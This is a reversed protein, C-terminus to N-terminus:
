LSQQLLKCIEDHGRAAAIMYPSTGSYDAISTDIGETALLQRVLGVHGAGAAYSLATRGELSIENVSFTERSFLLRAIGFSQWSIALAFMELGSGDYCAEPVHSLLTLANTLREPPDMTWAFPGWGNLDKAGACLPNKKLLRELIRVDSQQAAWSIANRGERDQWSLDCGGIHILYDVVDLHQSMAAYILPTRGHADVQNTQGRQTRVLLRVIDKFGYECAWSLATRQTSDLCDSRTRSDRLLQRVIPLSGVSVAWTLPTAGLRDPLNVDVQSHSLIEIVTELHGGGAAVSLPTRGNLDLENVSFSEGSLIEVVCTTNGRAAAIVLPSRGRINSWSRQSPRASLLVRTCSVYGNSAAWYLAPSCADDGCGSLLVTAMADHGYFCALTLADPEVPYGGREHDLISVYRFWNRQSKTEYLLLALGQLEATLEHQIVFFHYTWFRAAYDFLRYRIGMSAAADETVEESERFLMSLSHDSTPSDDCKGTFSRTGSRIPSSPTPPRSNSLLDYEFDELLLYRMCSELVTSHPTIVDSFLCHFEAARVDAQCGVLYEKLTHHILAVRDDSTRVLGSLLGELQRTDSFVASADVEAVSLHMEDIALLANMEHVTLNRQCTGILCISKGALSRDDEPISEMLSSYMRMLTGPMNQAVTLLDSKELFRRRHLLSLALSVWLFSGEAKKQLVNELLIGTQETCRGNRVLRETNEQIFFYVDQELSSQRMELELHSTFDNYDKLASAAPCNPRSTVFARIPTLNLRAMEYLNQVFWEQGDQPCEDIADIILVLSQVRKHTALTQFLRWLAFKDTSLQDHEEMFRKAIKLLKRRAIVIQYIFSRLLTCVDAQNSITGDFYYRCTITASL